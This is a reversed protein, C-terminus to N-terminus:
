NTNLQYIHFLVIYRVKTSKRHLFSFRHAKKVAKPDVEEHTDAKAKGKGKDKIAEPEISENNYDAPASEHLIMQLDNETYEGATPGWWSPRDPLPPPTGEASIVRTLFQEDGENLIPAPHPSTPRKTEAEQKLDKALKKAAQHKKAKKYTFYELM